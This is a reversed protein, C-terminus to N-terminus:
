AADELHNEVDKYKFSLEDLKEKVIWSRTTEPIKITKSGPELYGVEVMKYYVRKLGSKGTDFAFDRSIVGEKQSTLVVDPNYEGEVMKAFGQCYIAAGSDVQTMHGDISKISVVSETLGQLYKRAPRRVAYCVRGIQTPKVGWGPPVGEFVFYGLEPSSVDLLPDTMKVTKKVTMEAAPDCLVLSAGSFTYVRYLKGDYRCLTGALRHSAENVTEWPMTM